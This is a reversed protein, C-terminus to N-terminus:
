QVSMVCQLQPSERYPVQPNNCTAATLRFSVKLNRLIINKVVFAETTASHQLFVVHVTFLLFNHERFRTLSM